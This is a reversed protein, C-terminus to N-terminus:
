IKLVLVGLNTLNQFTKRHFIKTYRIAMQDIKRDNPLSQPWKTCKIIMQYVLWQTNKRTKTHKLLFFRTVRICRLGASFYLTKYDFKGLNCVHRVTVFELSLFTESSVRRIFHRWPFLRCPRFQERPLIKVILHVYMCVYRFVLGFVVFTSSGPLSCIELHINATQEVTHHELMQLLPKHSKYGM